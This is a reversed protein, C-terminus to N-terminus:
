APGEDLAMDAMMEAALSELLARLAEISMTEPVALVAKVGFQHPGAPAHALETGLEEISIDHASLSASLDRVIGPRDPATLELSV